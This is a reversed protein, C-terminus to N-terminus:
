HLFWYNPMWLDRHYSTKPEIYNMKLGAKTWRRGQVYRDKEHLEHSAQAELELTVMRTRKAHRRGYRRM